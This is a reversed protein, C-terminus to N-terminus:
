EKNRPRVQQGKGFSFYVMWMHIGNHETELRIHCVNSLEASLGWLAMAEGPHAFGAEEAKRWITFAGAGKSCLTILTVELIM